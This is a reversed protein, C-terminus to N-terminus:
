QMFRTSGQRTYIFETQWEQDFRWGLRIRFRNSGAFREEVEDGALDAFVEFDTLAYLTKPDRISRISIGTNM